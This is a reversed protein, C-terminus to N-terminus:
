RLITRGRFAMPSPAGSLSWTKRRVIRYAHLAWIPYHEGALAAYAKTAAPLDQSELYSELIEIDDIDNFRCIASFDSVLMDATAAENLITSRNQDHIRYRLLRDPLSHLPGAESLRWWLDRDEAGNRFYTRYGGARRLADTRMMASPHVLTPPAPPFRRFDRCRDPLLFGSREGPQAATPNGSADINIVNTGLAICAPHELMHAVQREFRNPESIDDSDMRAALQGRAEATARNLAAVLGRNETTIVKIRGDGAATSALIEATADTSGDDVVIIELTGYTQCVISDIAQQIHPAGNYVPLLVSVLPAAATM